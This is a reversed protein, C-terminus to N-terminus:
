WCVSGHCYGGKFRKGNDGGTCCRPCSVPKFSTPCKAVCGVENGNVVDGKIFLFMEQIVVMLTLIAVIHTRSM